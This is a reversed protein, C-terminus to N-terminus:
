LETYLSGIKIIAQRIHRSDTASKGQERKSIPLPEGNLTTMVNNAWLDAEGKYHGLKDMLGLIVDSRIRAIEENAREVIRTLDDGTEWGRGSLFKEIKTVEAAIKKM